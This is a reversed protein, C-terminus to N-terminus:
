ILGRLVSIRYSQTQSSTEVKKATQAALLPPFEAPIAGRHKSVPTVTLDWGFWYALCHQDQSLTVATKTELTAETM